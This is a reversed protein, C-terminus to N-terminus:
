LARRWSQLMLMYNAREYAQPDPCNRLNMSGRMQALSEYEHEELWATLERRLEALRESGHRLLASVVQVAHAGAMIAQVVDTVTHVGGTVALSARLRPALIALWRIRLPLEESTSLHLERRVELEEVDIGPQYFRNFLIMGELGTDDLREALHALSTYFPSLKIALPIRVVDRVARVMDLTREEIAAASEDPNTALAHVNLELADAGAEQMLGAYRLWGGLSVGNLSAIVPVDVAAQVRRIQELYDDPGVAFADEGPFYSQAEPSSHSHRETSGYLALQEAEIQEEFLSHLVIAAAGADELRRVTDLDDVLPSAGPMLPHPLEFGLYTTSLDM